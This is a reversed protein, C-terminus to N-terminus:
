QRINLYFGLLVILNIINKQLQKGQCPYYWAAKSIEKRLTINLLLFLAKNYSM